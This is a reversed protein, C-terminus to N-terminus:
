LDKKERHIREPLWIVLFLIIGIKLHQHAPYEFKPKGTIIQEDLFNLSM